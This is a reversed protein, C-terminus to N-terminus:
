SSRPCNNLTEKVSDFLTLQGGPCAGHDAERQSKFWKAIEQDLNWKPPFFPAPLEGTMSFKQKIRKRGSQGKIKPNTVRTYKSIECLLNQIDIPQLSRGWLGQFDLDYRRFEGEQMDTLWLIADAPSYDGLSNFCKSLGDLAGPGAVVFDGESHNTLTTYNLDIAYQFALFPGLTPYSLLLHYAESLSKTEKLKRPLHDEIMTHILRLHLRHKPLGTKGGSPMIYAGSYIPIRKQRLGELLNGCKEYDFGDAVPIGLSETIAEWTDTKNFIKFLLTRLFVTDETADTDQYVLRILYQSVRDAARFANTFKYTSLVLDSTWPHPQGIVRRLYIQHREAAFKWLVPYLTSPKPKSRKVLGKATRRTVSSSDRRKSSRNVSAM